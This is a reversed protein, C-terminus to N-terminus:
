RLKRLLKTIREIHSIAFPYALFATAGADAAALVNERTSETGYVVIPMTKTKMFIQDRVKKVFALTASGFVV